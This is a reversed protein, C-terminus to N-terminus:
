CNITVSIREIISFLEHEIELMSKGRYDNLAFTTINSEKCKEKQFNDMAVETIFIAKSANGGYNNVVTRFKDIDTSNFLKTKCEVFLIRNNLRAIIDVENKIKGEPGIIQPFFCNLRIDSLLNCHSLMQAIKLEFWGSNFVIKKAFPSDFEFDCWGFNKSFLTLVIHNGDWSVKCKSPSQMIGENQEFTQKSDNPIVAVLSNFEKFNFRRANQTCRMVEFDADTYNSFPTYNILPNGNVRFLQDMDFAVNDVLLTEFDSIQHNQDVLFFRTNRVTRFAEFFALSWHKTGSTLNLSIEDESDLERKLENIKIFIESLNTPDFEKFFCKQIIENEIVKAADHTELSHILYVVNPRSHEVGNLVPEKQKGVLSIHVKRM